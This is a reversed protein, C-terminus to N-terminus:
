KRGKQELIKKLDAVDEASLDADELFQALMPKMAGGYVRRAFSHREQHVCETEGVAPYYRYERGDKEFRLAGKKLLRHILTKITKPKWKTERSLEEVIENATMAAKSWLAKMVLWEADSIRPLRKM